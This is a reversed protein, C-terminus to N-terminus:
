SYLDCVMLAPMEKMEENECSKFLRLCDEEVKRWGGEEHVINKV